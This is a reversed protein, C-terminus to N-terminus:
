EYAFFQVDHIRVTVAGPAAAYAGVNAFGPFLPSGIQESTAVYPLASWIRTGSVNGTYGTTAEFRPAITPYITGVGPIVSKVRDTSVIPGAMTRQNWNKYVPWLRVSVQATQGAVPVGLIEYDILGGILPVKDQPTSVHGCLLIPEQISAPFVSTAASNNVNPDYDIPAIIGMSQFSFLLRWPNGSQDYLKFSM